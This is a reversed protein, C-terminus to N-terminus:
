IKKLLHKSKREKLRIVEEEELQSSEASGSNSFKHGANSSRTMSQFTVSHLDGLGLCCVRGSHDNGLVKNICDDVSIENFNVSQSM